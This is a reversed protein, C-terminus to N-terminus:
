ATATSSIVVTEQSDQTAYVIAVMSSTRITPLGAARAIQHLALSARLLVTPGFDLPTVVVLLLLCTSNAGVMHNTRQMHLVIMTSIVHNKVSQRPRRITPRQRVGALTLAHEVLNLTFSRKAYETWDKQLVNGSATSTPALAEALSPLALSQTVAKAKLVKTARVIVDTLTSLTTQRGMDAAILLRVALFTNKTVIEGSAVPLASASSVSMGISVGVMRNMCRIGLVTQTPLADMKASRSPTHIMLFQRLGAQSTALAM